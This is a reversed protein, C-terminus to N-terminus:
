ARGAPPQFGLTADLLAPIDFVAGEEEMVLPAVGAAAVLSAPVSIREHDRVVTWTELRKDRFAQNLASWRLMAARALPTDGGWQRHALTLASSPEIDAHPLTMLEQIYKVMEEPPVPLELDSSDIIAENMASM